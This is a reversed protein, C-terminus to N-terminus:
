SHSLHHFSTAQLFSWGLRWTLRRPSSYGKVVVPHRLVVPIQQRMVRSAVLGFDLHQCPQARESTEMPCNKREENKAENNSAMRAKRPKPCMVRMEAEMMIAHEGTPTQTETGGVLLFISTVPNISSICYARM